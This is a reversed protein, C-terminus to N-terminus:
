YHPDLLHIFEKRTLVLEEVRICHMDLLMAMPTNPGVNVETGPLVLRVRYCRQVPPEKADIKLMDDVVGRHINPMLNSMLVHEENYKLNFEAVNFCRNVDLRQRGQCVYLHVPPRHLQVRRHLLVPRKLGWCTRGPIVGECSVSSLTITM